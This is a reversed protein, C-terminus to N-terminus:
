ISLSEYLNFLKKEENGWNYEAIVANRGNEGHISAIERNNVYYQIAKSISDIDDPNLTIGCNHKTIIEKWIVFDTCIVPIGAYMYEFLKTIGLTGKGWGLNACNECLCMGAIYQSHIQTIHAHNAYGKYLIKDNGGIEKLKRIYEENERGYLHYQTNDLKSIAQAIDGHHWGSNIIGTFCVADCVNEKKCLSDNGSDLRPYNTIMITNQCLRSLRNVVHPTVAIVANLRSLIKKELRKYCAIIIKKLYQPLYDKDELQAPVDEHSDFIVTKGKKKMKNAYPLLEPDHFHYIDCDLAIAQEYIKQTFSLMRKLRSIPKEGIGIIEVGQDVRSEGPGVIMVEYGNNALSVCEKYFIREDYTSHVSTVHCVRVM